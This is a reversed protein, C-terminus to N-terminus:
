QKVLNLIDQGIDKRYYVDKWSIESTKKYANQLAEETTEGIGTVALVRGGNITPTGL